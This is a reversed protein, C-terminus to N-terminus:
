CSFGAKVQESCQKATKNKFEAALMCDMYKAVFNLKADASQKKDSINCSFAQLHSKFNDSHDGIIYSHGGTKVDWIMLSKAASYHLSVATETGGALVKGNSIFYSEDKSDVSEAFNMNDAQSLSSMFFGAIYKNYTKLYNIKAETSSNSWIEDGLILKSMTPLAFNSKFVATVKELKEAFSLNEDRLQTMQNTFTQAHQLVKQSVEEANASACIAVMTVITLLKISRKM